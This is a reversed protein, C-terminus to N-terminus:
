NNRKGFCVETSLQMCIWIQENTKIHYWVPPPPPPVNSSGCSRSIISNLFFWYIKFLTQWVILKNIFWSLKEIINTKWPVHIGHRNQISWQYQMCVMIYGSSMASARVCLGGNKFTITRILDCTWTLQSHYLKWLCKSYKDWNRPMGNKQYAARIDHMQIYFPPPSVFSNPLRTM